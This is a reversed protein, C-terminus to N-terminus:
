KKLPASLTKEWADADLTLADGEALGELLSQLSLASELGALAAADIHGDVPVVADAKWEKVNNLVKEVEKIKFTLPAAEGQVAAAARAVFAVAAPPASVGFSKFFELADERMADNDPLDVEVYHAAASLEECLSTLFTAVGEAGLGKVSEIEQAEDETLSELEEGSPGGEGSTSSASTSAKKGKVKPLATFNESVMDGPMVAVDRKNLTNTNKRNTQAISLVAMRDTLGLVTVLVLIRLSAPAGQLRRPLKSIIYGLLYKTCAWTLKRRANGGGGSGTGSGSNIRRRAAITLLTQLVPPLVNIGLPQLGQHVMIFFKHLEGSQALKECRGLVKQVVSLIEVAETVFSYVGFQLPTMRSDLKLVSVVAFMAKFTTLLFKRLSGWSAQGDTLVEVLVARGDVVVKLTKEGFGVLQAGGSQPKHLIGLHLKLVGLLAVFDCLTLNGLSSPAQRDLYVRSLFDRLFTLLALLAELEGGRQSVTVCLGAHTGKVSQLRNRLGIPLAFDVQLHARRYQADSRIGLADFLSDVNAAQEASYPCGPLTHQWWRMHNPQEM